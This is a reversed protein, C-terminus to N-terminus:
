ILLLSAISFQLNSDQQWVIAIVRFFINYEEFKWLFFIDNKVTKIQDFVNRDIIHVFFLKKNYEILNKM